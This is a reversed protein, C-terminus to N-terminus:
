LPPGDEPALLDDFKAFEDFADLISRAEAPELREIAAGAHVLVYDGVKAEPVLTLGVTLSAGGADVVGSQGDPAISILTFPRALCM